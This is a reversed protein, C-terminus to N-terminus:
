ENFFGGADDGIGRWFFGKRSVSATTSCFAVSNRSLATASELARASIASSSRRVRPTASAKALRGCGSVTASASVWGPLKMMDASPVAQNM